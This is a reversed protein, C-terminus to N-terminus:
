PISEEKSRLFVHSVSSSVSSSALTFSLQATHCKRGIAVVGGRASESLKGM